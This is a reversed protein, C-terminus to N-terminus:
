VYTYTPESGEGIRILYNAFDRAIEQDQGSLAQVRMNTVLPLVKVKKWLESRNFSANVVDYRKGLKVVPLVQRFDGGFIILKNGFPYKKNEPNKQSMIDRMTRDLAEFAKRDMM